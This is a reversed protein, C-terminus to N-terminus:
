IGRNNSAPDTLKIKQVNIVIKKVNNKWKNLENFEVAQYHIHLDSSVKQVNGLNSISKKLKKIKNSKWENLENIEVAQYYHIHTFTDCSFFYILTM